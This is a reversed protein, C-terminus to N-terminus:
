RREKGRTLPFQDDLQDWFGPSPMASYGPWDHAGADWASQMFSLLTAKPDAQARLDDYKLMALHSSPLAQWWAQDPALPHTEIGTPEPAAYAYFAPFPTKPDGPWFGFSAVEHSYAEVDSRRGGEGKNPAQRGSFRTIVFDFSHWFLHSPSTKAFSRGGFTEYTDHVFRLIAWWRAMADGDWPRVATDQAFPISSHPCDYPKALIKTPHGVAELAATISRYVNAISAGELPIREHAGASTFLRVARDPIDLELELNGDGVPIAETTLGRTSLRLTAHWWFPHKPHLQLKVKGLIQALLHVAAKTPEWAPYDLEPLTRTM